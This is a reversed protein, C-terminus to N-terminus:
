LDPVRLGPCRDRARALYQEQNGGWGHVFLVGPPTDRESSTLLMGPLHQCDVPIDLIEDRAFM